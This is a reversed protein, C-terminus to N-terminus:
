APGTRDACIGDGIERRMEFHILDRKLIFIHESQGERMSFDLVHYGFREQLIFFIAGRVAGHLKFRQVGKQLFWYPGHFLIDGSKTGRKSDEPTARHPAPFLLQGPYICFCSRKTNKEIEHDKTALLYGSREKLSGTVLKELSSDDQVHYLDFGCEHFYEELTEEMGLDERPDARVLETPGLARRVIEATAADCWETFRGPLGIVFSFCIRGQSMTRMRIDLWGAAPFRGPRPIGHNATEWVRSVGREAPLASSAAILPHDSGLPHSGGSVLM